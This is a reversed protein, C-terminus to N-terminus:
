FRGSLQLGAFTPAVRVRAHSRRTLRLERTGAVILAAGLALGVVGAVAGAAIRTESQNHQREIPALLEPRTPAAAPWSASASATSTCATPSSV